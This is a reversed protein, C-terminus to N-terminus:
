RLLRSDQIKIMGLALTVDHDIGKCVSTNSEFFLQLHVRNFLLDGVHLWQGSVVVFAPAAEVIVVGYAIVIPVSVYWGAGGDQLSAGICSELCSSEDVPDDRDALSDPIGFSIHLLDFKM